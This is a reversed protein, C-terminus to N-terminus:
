ERMAKRSQAHLVVHPLHQMPLQLCQRRRLASALDHALLQTTREVAEEGVEVGGAGEGNGKSLRRWSGSCHSVVVMTAAVAAM